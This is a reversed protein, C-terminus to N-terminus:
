SVETVVNERNPRFIESIQYFIKKSLIEGMQDILLTTLLYCSLVAYIINIYNCWYFAKYFDKNAIFANLTFM